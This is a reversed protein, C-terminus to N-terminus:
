LFYGRNMLNFSTSLAQTGNKMKISFFLVHVFIGHTPSVTVCCCCCQEHAVFCLLPGSFKQQFKWCLKRMWLHLRVTVTILISKKGFSKPKPTQLWRKSTFVADVEQSSAHPSRYNMHQLYPSPLISLDVVRTRVGASNEAMLSGRQRQRGSSTLGLDPSLEAEGPVSFLKSNWGPSM